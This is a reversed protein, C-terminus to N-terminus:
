FFLLLYCAAHRVKRSGSSSSRSTRTRTSPSFGSSDPWTRWSSLHPDPPPPRPAPLVGSGSVLPPLRLSFFLILFNFLSFIDTASYKIIPTGTLQTCSYINHNKCMKCRLYMFIHYMHHPINIIIPTGTVSHDFNLTISVQLAVSYNAEGSECM